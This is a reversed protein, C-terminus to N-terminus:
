RILLVGYYVYVITLILDIPVSFVPYLLSAFTVLVPWTFHLRSFPALQHANSFCYWAMIPIISPFIPQIFRLFAIDVSWRLGVITTSIACLIIFVFPDTIEKNQKEFMLIAIIILLMSVIFPLPIAFM